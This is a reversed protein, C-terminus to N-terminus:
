KGVEDISQRVSISDVVAEYIEELEIPHQLYYNYSYAFVTDTINNQDLLYNEYVEFIYDSSDKKLRLNQVQAEAIHLDILYNVMDEKPMLMNENGSNQCSIAALMIISFITNRV